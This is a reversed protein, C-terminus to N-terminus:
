RSTVGWTNLQVIYSEVNQLTDTMIWTKFTWSGPTIGGDYHVGWKAFNSSYQCTSGIPSPSTCGGTSNDYFVFGANPSNIFVGMAPSSPTNGSALIVAQPGSGSGPVDYGTTGSVAQVTAYSVAAFSQSAPVYYYYQNFSPNLYATPAEVVASGSMPPATIVTQYLVLPWKRDINDPGIWDLTMNKGITVDPYIVPNDVGGGFNQPNWELPVAATSQSNGSTTISICPSPHAMDVNSVNPDGFGYQDGAEGLASRPSGYDPYMAAQLQRGYDYDNIFEIGNWWWEWVACGTAVNSKIEVGSASVSAQVRDTGPYRAYGYGLPTSDLTYYPFSQPHPVPSSDVATVHDGSNASQPQNDYLRALGSIGPKASGSSWIYGIAGETNYGSEGPISSDMHDTASPKVLRYLPVLGPISTGAADTSQSPIYFIGVYGPHLDREQPSTTSTYDTGLQM